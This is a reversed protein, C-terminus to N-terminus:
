WEEYGRYYPSCKLAFLDKAKGKLINNVAMADKLEKVSYLEAKIAQATTADRQGQTLAALRGRSEQVCKALLGERLSFNHRAQEFIQQCKAAPDPSKSIHDTIRSDVMSDMARLKVLFFKVDECSSQSTLSEETVEKDQKLISSALLQDVNAM